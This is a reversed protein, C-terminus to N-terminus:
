EESAAIACAVMFEGRPLALGTYLYMVLGDDGAHIEELVNGFFDQITGLLQGKSIKQGHKVAPLWLGDRDAEMYVAERFVRRCLTADYLGEPAAFIGLHDLLLRIDRWDAEVWEPECFYGDGREILLGPINLRSAAYSYQGMTAQSEVLLGVNLAKAAALASERVGAHTPFFVLPTMREGRSGGHLDLIFDTQPFIEKVFFDAIREGVSGDPRGPYQGNFNFNDEPTTRPHMTWFGSTNVCPMLIARGCMRAPDLDKAARIVAPTGNFEGAHMGATVLLTKGPRAGNVVIVPLEYGNVRKTGPCVAGFNTLGGVPISLSLQRQEGPKLTIGFIKWNDM